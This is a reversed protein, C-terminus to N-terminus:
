PDHFSLCAHPYWDPLDDLGFAAAPQELSFAHPRNYLFAAVPTLGNTRSMVDSLWKPHIRSHRREREEVRPFEWPNLERQKLTSDSGPGEFASTVMLRRSSSKRDVAM